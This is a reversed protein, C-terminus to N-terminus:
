ARADGELIDIPRRALALVSLGFPLETVALLRRELALAATALANLSAPPVVLDRAPGPPLWRESLRWTVALPLLLSNAYTLRVVEFGASELRERLVAASYRERTLVEADHRSRLWDYAPVQILLHGGPRLVRRFEALAARDSGVAQHYVVDLSTVTDFSGDPCPLDTVSARVLEGLGRQRALDLAYRALDLAVRTTGEDALTALFGGTGCGADLVAGPPGADALMQRAIGRMGVFWWHRDEAAALRDFAAQNL